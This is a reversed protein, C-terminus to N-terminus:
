LSPQPNDIKSTNDDEYPANKRYRLEVRLWQLSENVTEYGTYQTYKKNFRCINVLNNFYYHLQLKNSKQRNEHGTLPQLNTWHFCIKVNTDISFDFKNIPIIHDIQWYEGLNDWNMNSDFRFELWKKLFALDCGIYKSYSVSKLMKHLKSRLIESIKFNIDTKRKEKVKLKRIPLYETNKKKIHEKIETKNRYERRQMNISEKNNLRYLKNYDLVTEKNNEYYERNKEKVHEKNKLNYKKRCDKCDYRLGDKSCKLVGYNEYPQDIKCKCCLKSM